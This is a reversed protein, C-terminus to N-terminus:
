GAETKQGAKEAPNVVNKVCHVSNEKAALNTYKRRVALRNGM